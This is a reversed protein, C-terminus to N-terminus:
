ALISIYAHEDENTQNGNIAVSFAKCWTIVISYQTAKNTIAIIIYSDKNIGMPPANLTFNM